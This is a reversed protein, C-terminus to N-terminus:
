CKQLVIFREKDCFDKHVSLIKLRQCSKELFSPILYPHCPDVELFLCGSSTLFKESCRLISEITDLGQSGGDLARLDEFVRIEPELQTLDKRLIYPPNSVIIDLTSDGVMGELGFDESDDVKAHVIKVSNKLHLLTANEETLECARESQDVALVKLHRSTEKLLSLCIAGSGCGIELVHIPDVNCNINKLM